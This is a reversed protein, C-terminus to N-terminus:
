RADSAQNRSRPQRAAVRGSGPRWTAYGIAAALANLLVDDVDARRYVHGVALSAALQAAEIALSVAVGLAVVRGLSRWRSWVAPALVGLPMFAAVNGAISVISGFTLGRQLADRITALPVAQVWPGAAHGPGPAAGAGLPLLALAALVGLYVLVLRLAM